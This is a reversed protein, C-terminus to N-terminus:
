QKVEFLHVQSHSSYSNFRIETSNYTRIYIKFLYENTNSVTYSGNYTHYWQINASTISSFYMVSHSNGSGNYDTLSSPFSESGGSPTVGLFFSFGVDSTSSRGVHSAMGANILLLSNSYKPTYKFYNSTYYNTNNNPSALHYGHDVDYHPASTGVYTRAYCISGAPLNTNSGLTLTPNSALADISGEHQTVNSVAIRADAFTGSTISSTDIGDGYDAIDRARSM